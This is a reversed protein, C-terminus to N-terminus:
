KKMKSEKLAATPTSGGEATQLVAADVDISAARKPYEKRMAEAKIKMQDDLPLLYRYKPITYRRKLDSRKLSKKLKGFHKVVGSSSVTRSHHAKGDGDVFVPSPVTQGAYIWGMAQYIGGHHGQEPDAFSVLMRIKPSQKRLMKVAISVIRSVPSIHDRLAVRTLESIEFETLNFRKGLNKAAGMGFAVVGIFRDNSGMGRDQRNEGQAIDEFLAMEIRCVRFGSPYGM